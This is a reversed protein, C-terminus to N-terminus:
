PQVTNESGSEASEPTYGEPFSFNMIDRFTNKAFEYKKETRSKSFFTSMTSMNRMCLVTDKPFAGLATFYKGFDTDKLYVGYDDIACDPRYGLVEELKVFGSNSKVREYWFPDLMCISSEGSVIEQTFMKEQDEMTNGNINVIFISTNGGSNAESIQEDTYLTIDSLLVNKKSDGDYDGSMVQAFSTQIEQKQNIDLICPGTYLVQIDYSENNGSQIAMFLIIGIFFVTVLTIWKYHYWFNDLWKFISKMSMVGKQM